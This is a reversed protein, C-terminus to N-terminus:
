KDTNPKGFLSSIRNTIGLNPILPNQKIGEAGKSTPVETGNDATGTSPTKYAEDFDNINFEDKIKGLATKIGDALSTETLKTGNAKLNSIFMASEVKPEQLYLGRDGVFLTFTIKKNKLTKKAGGRVRKRKYRTQKKM